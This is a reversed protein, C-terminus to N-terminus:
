RVKEGKLTKRAFERVEEPSNWETNWIHELAKRYRDIQETLRQNEAGQLQWEKLLRDREAVIGAIFHAREEESMSM